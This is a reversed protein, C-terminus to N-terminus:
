GGMVGYGFVDLAQGDSTEVTVDPAPDNILDFADPTREGIYTLVGDETIAFAAADDGTLSFAVDQGAQYQAPSNDLETIIVLSPGTLEVTPEPDDCCKRHGWGWGNGHEHHGRGHHNQHSDECRGHHRHTHHHRTM